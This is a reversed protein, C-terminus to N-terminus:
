PRFLAAVGQPTETGAIGAFLKDTTRFIRERRIGADSESAARLIRDMEREGTASVLMAEAELGSQLAEQLLKPGEAGIMEGAAPGNGRLAARFLKLWKNDRGTIVSSDAEERRVAAFKASPPRVAKPFQHGM